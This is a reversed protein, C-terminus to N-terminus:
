GKKHKLISREVKLLECIGAPASPNKWVSEDEYLVCQITAQGRFRSLLKQGKQPSQIVRVPPSSLHGKLTATRNETLKKYSLFSHRGSEKESSLDFFVYDWAIGEITKAGLNKVRISYTYFVSLRSPVPPFGLPETGLIPNRSNAIATRSDTVPVTSLRPNNFTTGTPIASPDFNQPLKVQKGWQLGLIEIASSPQANEVQAASLPSVLLCFTFAPVLCFSRRLMDKWIM